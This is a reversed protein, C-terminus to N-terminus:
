SKTQPSQNELSLRDLYAIIKAYAALARDFNESTRSDDGIKGLDFDSDSDRHLQFAERLEAEVWQYTGRSVSRASKINEWKAHAVREYLRM